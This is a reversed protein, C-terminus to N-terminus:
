YLFRKNFTNSSLLRLPLLFKAYEFYNAAGDEGSNRSHMLVCDFNIKNGNVTTSFDNKDIPFETEADDVYVWKRQFIYAFATTNQKELSQYVVNGM